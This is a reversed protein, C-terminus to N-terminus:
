NSVKNTRVFGRYWLFDPPFTYHALFLFIWKTFFLNNLPLFYYTKNLFIKTFGYRVLIEEQMGRM